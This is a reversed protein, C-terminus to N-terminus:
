RISCQEEELILDVIGLEVKEIRAVGIMGVVLVLHHNDPVYVKMVKWSGLGSVWYLVRYFM